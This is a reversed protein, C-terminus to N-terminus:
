PACDPDAADVQGDGDDDIKNGCERKDAPLCGPDEADMLGDLDDDIGNACDEATSECDITEFVCGCGIPFTRDREYVRDRLQDASPTPVIMTEVGSRTLRAKDPEWSAWCFPRGVVADVDIKLAPDSAIDAVVRSSLAGHFLAVPQIKGSKLATFRVGESAEACTHQEPAIQLAGTSDRYGFQVTGIGYYDCDAYAGIFPEHCMTPDCADPTKCDVHDCLAREVPQEGCAYPLVIASSGPGHEACYEDLGYDLQVAASADTCVANRFLVSWLVGDLARLTVEAQGFVAEPVVESTRVCRLARICPELDCADAAAPQDLCGLLEEITETRATNECRSVCAALKREETDGFEGGLSSPLFGCGLALGCVRSCTGEDLGTPGCVAAVAGLALAVALAAPRM